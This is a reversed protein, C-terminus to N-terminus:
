GNAQAILADITPQQDPPALTKAQQLLALAESRRELRLLAIGAELAYQFNSPELGMLAQAIELMKTRYSLDEETIRKARAALLPSATM